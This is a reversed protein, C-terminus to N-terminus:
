NALARASRLGEESIKLLSFHFKLADEMKMRSIRLQSKTSESVSGQRLTKDVLDWLMDIMNYPVFDINGKEPIRSASMAKRAEGESDGGMLIQTVLNCADIYRCRQIFLACLASANASSSGNPTKGFLGPRRESLGLLHDELFYPLHSDGNELFSRAVELAIPTAASDRDLVIRRILEMASSSLREKVLMKRSGYRSASVYASFPLAKPGDFENLTYELQSITPRNSPKDIEMDNDCEDRVFDVNTALGVLHTCVVNTYLINLLDTGNPMSSGNRENYCAARAKAVEFALSFYGFSALQDVTEIDVSLPPRSLVFPSLSTALSDFFMTEFAISRVARGRLENATMFRSLRGEKSQLGEHGQVIARRDSGRKLVSKPALDEADDLLTISPYPGFEGAVIFADAPDPVLQIAVMTAIASLSLDRAALTDNISGAGSSLAREADGFSLDMAQAARKWDGSNAHIAYLCGLYNPAKSGVTHRDGMNGRSLTDAAIEYLDIDKVSACLGMLDSLAGADVMGKVLQEFNRLQRERCPNKICADVAMTWDRVAEAHRFLLSWLGIYEPMEKYMSQPFLGEIERITRETQVVLSLSNNDSKTLRGLRDTRREIISLRHMLNSLRLLVHLLAEISQMQGNSMRPLGGTSFYPLFVMRVTEKECLRRVDLRIASDVYGYLIRQLEKMMEHEADVVDMSPTFGKAARILADYTAAVAHLDNGRKFDAPDLLVNARARMQEALESNHNAEILLCEAIAETRAITANPMDASYLTATALLRLALRPYDSAIDDKFPAPLCGLEPFLQYQSGVDRPTRFTSELVANALTTVLEQLTLDPPLRASAQILHADLATTKHNSSPLISSCDEDGFSLRKRSVPSDGFAVFPSKSVSPMAVHQSWAWMTALTHLYKTFVMNQVVSENSHALLLLCRGINLRRMGDLGRVALGAAAIRIDPIPVASENTIALGLNNSLGPFMVEKPASELYEQLKIPTMKKLLRQMEAFSGAQAWLGLNKMEGELQRLDRQDQLVLSCSTVVDWLGAEISYLSDPKQAEVKTILRFAREDLVDFESMLAVDSIGELISLVNARMLIMRGDPLASICLPDRMRAEQQWLTTLFSRWRRIHAEEDDPTPENSEMPDDDEEKDAYTDYVSRTPQTVATSQETRRWQQMAKLTELELNPGVFKYGKVLKSIAAEVTARSPGATTGTARPYAPRFVHRLFLTDIQNLDKASIASIRQLEEDAVGDLTYDVLTMRPTPDLGSRSSPYVLRSFHTIQTTGPHEEAALAFLQPATGPQLALTLITSVDEPVQLPTVTQHTGDHYSQVLHLTSGKQRTQIHVVAAIKHAYEQATICFSFPALSTAWQDPLQFAVPYVQYPHGRHNLKWQRMKADAHLTFLWGQTSALASVPAMDFQEVRGLLISSARGLISGISASMLEQVQKESWVFVSPENLNVTLILPSLAIIATTISPFSVMTTHLEAGSYEIDQEELLREISITSYKTPTLTDKQLNIIYITAKADVVLLKLATNSAEFCQVKAIASGDLQQRLDLEVRLITAGQVLAVSLLKECPLTAVFSDKGLSSISASGVLPDVGGGWEGGLSEPSSTMMTRELRGNEQLSYRLCRGMKKAYLLPVESVIM